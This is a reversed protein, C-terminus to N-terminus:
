LTEVLSLMEARGEEIAAVIEEKYGERNMAEDAKLLLFDTAIGVATGGVIGAATGVVPAIVTGGTTTIVNIATRSGLATLLRTVIKSFFPKALVKGTIFKATFGAIVGSALSLGMRECSSLFSQTPELPASLFDETLDGKVEILWEPVDVLKYESLEELLEKELADAQKMYNELLSVLESDDVEDNIQAELQDRMGDEITGTFFQALREYDAPLSYYWDLYSDVNALRADFADNILPTLADRTEQALVASQESAEQILEEVKVFDYPERDIIYAAVSVQNRIISQAQTYEDSQTAKAALTDAVLFCAILCLPLACATVIYRKKISSREKPKKVAELPVFIRKLETKDLICISLLNAYGFFASWVLLLKLLLHWGLSFEAVKSLTFSTLGDVLATLRGAEALLTSPADEFLLPASLFAESASLYAVPPELSQIIFYAICLLVSIALSSLLTTKSIHYLAEFEKKMKSKIGLSVLYFVPVAILVAIWQAFDWKPMELILGSVLAVSVLFCGIMSLTRGENVKSIFGNEQLEFQKLTKKAIVHYMLVATSVVVLLTGTVALVIPPMITACRALSYLLAVLVLAKGFYWIDRKFSPTQIVKHDRESM